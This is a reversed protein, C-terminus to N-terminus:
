SIYPHSLWNWMVAGFRSLFLVNFSCPICIALLFVARLVTLSPESRAWSPALAATLPRGAATGGSVWGGLSLTEAATCDARGPESHSVRLQLLYVCGSHQLDADRLPDTSETDGWDRISTNSTDTRCACCFVQDVFCINLLKNKNWTFHLNKLTTRWIENNAYGVYKENFIIGRLVDSLICFM